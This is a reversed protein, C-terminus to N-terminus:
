GQNLLIVSSTIGAVWPDDTGLVSAKRFRLKVERFRLQM